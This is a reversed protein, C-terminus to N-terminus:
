TCKVVWSVDSYRFLIFCDFLLSLTLSGFLCIYGKDNPGGRYGEEYRHSVLGSCMMMKLIDDAQGNCVEFDYFSM